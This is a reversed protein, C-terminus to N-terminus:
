EPVSPALAGATEVVESPLEPKSLLADLMQILDGLRQRGTIDCGGAYDGIAANVERGVYGLVEVLERIRAASLDLFQTQGKIHAALTRCRSENIEKGYDDADQLAEAIVGIAAFAAGSSIPVADVRALVIEARKRWITAIPGLPRLAGDPAGATPGKPGDTGNM